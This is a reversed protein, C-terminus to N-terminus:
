KVITGLQKIALIYNKQTPRITKSVIETQGTKNVENVHTAWGVLNIDTKYKQRM